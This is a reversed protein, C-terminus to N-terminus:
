DPESVTHHRQLDKVENLLHIEKWSVKFQNMKTDCDTQTGLHYVLHPLYDVPKLFVVCVQFACSM